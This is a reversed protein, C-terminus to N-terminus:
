SFALLTAMGFTAGAREKSLMPSISRPISAGSQLLSRWSTKGVSDSSSGAQPDPANKTAAIFVSTLTYLATIPRM